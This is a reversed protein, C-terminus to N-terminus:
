APGTNSALLWVDQGDVRLKLMHTAPRDSTVSFIVSVNTNALDQSVSKGLAGVDMLYKTKAAVNSGADETIGIYAQPQVRRAAAYTNDTQHELFLGYTNSAVTNANCTDLVFHAAAIQGLITTNGNQIKNTVIVGFRDLANVQASSNALMNFSGAAQIAANANATVSATVGVAAFTTAPLDIALQSLFNKVQVKYNTPTTATNGVMPLLDTGLIATIHETQQTIKKDPM